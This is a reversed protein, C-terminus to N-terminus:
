RLQFRQVRNGVKEVVYIWTAGNSAIGDPFRFQSLEFGFGGMNSIFLGNQDFVKVIQRIPDAIFIMPAGSTDPTIAIGSPLSFDSKEVEHAGFGLLYTGTTDFVKIAPKAYLDSVYLRDACVAIAMMTNFNEPNGGKKGITRKFNLDRDLVVITQLDGSVAIYLNDNTDIALAEPKLSLSSDGMVKAPWLHELSEGRFDLVDVYRALNDILIIDGHSNVVLTRPEGPQLQDPTTSPVFHQFTYKGILNEDYVAVENGGSNCVLVEHAYRDYFVSAPAILPAGSGDDIAFATVTITTEFDQATGQGSVVLAVVVLLVSLHNM